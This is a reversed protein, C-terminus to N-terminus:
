TACSAGVGMELNASQLRGRTPVLASDRDDRSWGEAHGPHGGREVQRLDREARHGHVQFLRPLGAAHRHVRVLGDVLTYTGNTGPTVSLLEVGIGLYVTDQEGVPFGFRISGGESASSTTATPRTTRGRPPTSCRQDHALHRGQHLVPRDGHAVITRNYSSTNVNLGLYNGRGFVNEQTIGFSLSVKDTSSYGAGLQLSGTPKEAVNMVLDVQDPSGPVEITDVNM